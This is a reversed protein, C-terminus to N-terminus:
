KKFRIPNVEIIIRGPNVARVIKKLVENGKTIYIVDDEM